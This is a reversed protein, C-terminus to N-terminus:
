MWMRVFAVRVVKIDDSSMEWNEIEESRRSMDTVSVTMYM